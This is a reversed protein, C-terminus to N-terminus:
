TACSRTPRRNPLAQLAQVIAIGADIMTALQRTFVVLDALRGQRGANQRRPSRKRSPVVLLNRNLL